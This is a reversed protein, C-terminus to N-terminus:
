HVELQCSRPLGALQGDADVLWIDIGAPTEANASRVAEFLDADLGEVGLVAVGAVGPGTVRLRVGASGGSRLRRCEIGVKAGQEPNLASGRRLRRIIAPSTLGTCAVLEADELSVALAGTALVLEDAAVGDGTVAVTTEVDALTLPVVAAGLAPEPLQRISGPRSLTELLLRFNAQSAFTDLRNVVTLTV